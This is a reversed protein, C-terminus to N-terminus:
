PETGLLKHAAEVAQWAKLAMEKEAPSKEHEMMDEARTQAYPLVNRLAQIYETAPSPTFTVADCTNVRECLDNIEEMMAVQGIEDMDIHDDALIKRINVPLHDFQMQLLRLGALILTVELHKPAAPAYDINAAQEAGRWNELAMVRAAPKMERWMERHRELVQAAVGGDTIGVLDQVYRVAQDIDYCKAADLLMGDNMRQWARQERPDPVFSQISWGYESQLEKAYDIADTPKSFDGVCEIGAMSQQHVLYVCYWEPSKDDIVVYDDIAAVERVGHVVIGTFNEPKGAIVRNAYRDYIDKKTEM